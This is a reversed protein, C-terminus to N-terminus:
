AVTLRPEHGELAEVLMRLDRCIDLNNLDERRLLGFGKAAILSVVEFDVLANLSPVDSVEETTMTDTAVAQAKPDVM